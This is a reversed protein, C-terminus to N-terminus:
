RAGTTFKSEDWVEFGAWIELPMAARAPKVIYEESESRLGERDWWSMEGREAKSGGSHSSLARKGAPLKSGITATHTHANRSRTSSSGGNFSRLNFIRRMLAWCMPMNAVLIATSAERIYWFTWM